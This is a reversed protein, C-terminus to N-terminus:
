SVLSQQSIDVKSLSEKLNSLFEELKEFVKTDQETKADFKTSYSNNFEVLKAIVDVIVDVKGHIISYNKEIKEVKKMMEFKLGVVKLNVSEELMKVQHVFIKHHEKAADRLKKIEYEFNQAQNKM